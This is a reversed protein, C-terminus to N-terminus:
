IRKISFIKRLRHLSIYYSLFQLKPYQELFYFYVKTAIVVEGM